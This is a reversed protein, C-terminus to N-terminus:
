TRARWYSVTLLTLGVVACVIAVWFALTSNEVLWPACVSTDISTDYCVMPSVNLVLAGILAVAIVVLATGVSRV